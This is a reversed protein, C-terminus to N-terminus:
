PQSEMVALRRAALRGVPTPRNSVRRLVDAAGAGGLDTLRDVAWEAVTRSHMQAFEDLLALQQTPTQGALAREGKALLAFARWPAQPDALIADLRATAAPAKFLGLAYTANKQVGPDPDTVAQLVLALGREDGLMALSGAAVVRVGPDAHTLFPAITLVDRAQGLKGLAALATKLVGLDSESRTIARLRPAARRDALIRLATAARRRVRVDGDASADVVADVGDRDRLEAIMGCAFVKEPAAGFRAAEWLAPLSETRRAVIANAIAAQDDRPAQAWARVLARPDATRYDSTAQASALGSAVAILLGAVVTATAGGM